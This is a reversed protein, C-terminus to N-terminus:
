FGQLPLSYRYPLGPHAAQAQLPCSGVAAPLLLLLLLLLLALSPPLLPAQRPKTGLQWAMWTRRWAPPAPMRPRWSRGAAVAAACSSGRLHASAGRRQPCCAPPCTLLLALLQVPGQVGFLLRALSTVAPVHWAARRWVHVWCCWGAGACCGGAGACCGGACCGGAIKAPDLKGHPCLLPANDVPDAPGAEVGSDAWKALWDAAVFRGPDGARVCECLHLLLTPQLTLRLASM